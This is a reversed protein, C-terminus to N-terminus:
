LYLWSRFADRTSCRCDLGTIGLIRYHLSFPAREDDAVALTVKGRGPKINGAAESSRGSAAQSYDDWLLELLGDFQQYEWDFQCVPKRETSFPHKSSISTELVAKIVHQMTGAWTLPFNM